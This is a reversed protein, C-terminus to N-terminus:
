DSQTYFHIQETKPEIRECNRNLQLRLACKWKMERRKLQRFSIVNYDNETHEAQSWWWRTHLETTCIHLKGLWFVVTGIHRRYNHRESSRHRHDNNNNGCILICWFNKNSTDGTSIAIFCYKGWEKAWKILTIHQWKWLSCVCVLWKPKISSLLPIFLISQFPKSIIMHRQNATAWNTGVCLSCFVDM